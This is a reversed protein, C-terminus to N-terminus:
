VGLGRRTDKEAKVEINEWENVSLKSDNVEIVINNRPSRTCYTVTVFDGNVWRINDGIHVDKAHKIVTVMKALEGKKHRKCLHTEGLSAKHVPCKACGFEPYEGSVAAGYNCCCKM